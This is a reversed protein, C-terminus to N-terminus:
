DGEVTKKILRCIIEARSIDKRIDKLEKPFKKESSWNKQDQKERRRGRISRGEDQGAGRDEM